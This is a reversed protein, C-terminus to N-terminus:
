SKRYALKMTTNPSAGATFGVVKFVGTVGTDIPVTLEAANAQGSDVHLAQNKRGFLYNGTAGMESPFFVLAGTMSVLAPTAYGGSLSRGYVYPAVSYATAGNALLWVNDSGQSALAGATTRPGASAFYYGRPIGITDPYVDLLGCDFAEPTARESSVCIGYQNTYYHITTGGADVDQRVDTLNNILLGTHDNIIWAIRTASIRTMNVTFFLGDSRVPSKITTPTVGTGGLITTWAPNGNTVCEAVLDDIISQVDTVALHELYRFNCSLFNPVTM